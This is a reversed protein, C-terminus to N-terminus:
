EMRRVQQVSGSRYFRLETVRGKQDTEFTIQADMIKAFFERSSEPYFEIKVDGEGQLILRGDQRTVTAMQGSPFRYRGAYRDLLAADIAVEKRVKV